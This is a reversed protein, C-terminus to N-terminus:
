SYIIYVNTGVYDKFIDFKEQSDIKIVSSREAQCNAVASPYTVNIGVYKLCTQFSFLDFTAFNDGCPALFLEKLIFIFVEYLTVYVTKGMKLIYHTISCLFPLVAKIM